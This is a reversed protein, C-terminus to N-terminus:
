RQLEELRSALAAKITGVEPDQARNHLEYPDAELDYLEEFPQGAVINRFYKWRRGRVGVNPTILLHTWNEILFDSRWPTRHELLGVLSAGDVKPLDSLGALEAFTPALDINLVLDDSSAPAPFRAPYRLVLPVRISEEYAADKGMWWHERWMFGNDSTFVIATDDTLGLNELEDVIAGTAEDVALLTELQRIRLTDSPEIQEPTDHDHRARVWPPKGAIDAEDWNPPRWPSLNALRGRHRTAPLAPLHPASPAYVFFFPRGANTRLLGILRDRLLDTSYARDDRGYQVLRGNENLTYGLYLDDGDVFTQWVGWGAPIAPALLDNANIYKGLLATEYGAASLWMPLTSEVRFLPAGGGSIPRNGLVRHHHAYLGSYISARSPACLSTTVFSQHFETGQLALDQIQPMVDLTDWRQDDTLVLLINPHIPQATAQNILGELTGRVCAALRSARAANPSDSLPAARAGSPQSADLVVSCPGAFTPSGTLYAPAAVCDRAVRRLSERSPGEARAGDIREQVRLEVFELVGHLLADRCAITPGHTPVPLV